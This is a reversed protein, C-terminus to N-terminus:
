AAPARRVGPALREAFRDMVDDMKKDFAEYQRDFNKSAEMARAAVDSAREVSRKTDQLSRVAARAAALVEEASRAGGGGDEATAGVEASKATALVDEAAAQRRPEAVPM